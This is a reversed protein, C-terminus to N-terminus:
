HQKCNRHCSGHAQQRGRQQRAQRRCSIHAPPQADASTLPSASATGAQCVSCTSCSVACSVVLPTGAHPGHPMCTLFSSVHQASQTETLQDWGMSVVSPEDQWGCLGWDDGGKRQAPKDHTALGAAARPKSPPCFPVAAVAPGKKAEDYQQLAWSRCNLTVALSLLHWERSCSGRHSFSCVVTGAASAALNIGRQACAPRDSTTM